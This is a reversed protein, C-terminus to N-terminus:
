FELTFRKFCYRFTLRHSEAKSESCTKARAFLLKITENPYKGEPVVKVGHHTPMARDIM